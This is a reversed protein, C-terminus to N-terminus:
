AREMRAYNIKLGQQLFIREFGTIFNTAQWESAHLDRTERTVKFPSAHFREAAWEFYELNDTKFDLFTGPRMLSHLLVLFETQILRNKWHRKKSWPDPFHIYVNNVEGEVFLHDLRRADYRSILANESGARRARRISQILPKFKLELGVLSRDPNAEALHAFHYGNGTGIELDLPHSESVKFGESRWKGKMLPSREEDYAYESYEGQLAKVYETPHNFRKSSALRPRRLKVGAIVVDDGGDQDSDAELEGDLEPNDQPKENPANDNSTM